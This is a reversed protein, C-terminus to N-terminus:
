PVRVRLGALLLLDHPFASLDPLLHVELRALPPVKVKPGAVRPDLVYHLLAKLLPLLDDPVLIPM